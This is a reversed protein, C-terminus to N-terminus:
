ASPRNRPSPGAGDGRAQDRESAKRRVTHRTEAMIRHLEEDFATRARELLAAAELLIPQDYANLYRKERTGSGVKLVPPDRHQSIANKVTDDKCWRDYIDILACRLKYNAGSADGDNAGADEAAVAGEVDQGGDSAGQSPRSRRPKRGRSEKVASLEERTLQPQLGITRELCAHWTLLLSRDVPALTRPRPPATVTKKERVRRPSPAPWAARVPSPVCGNRLKGGAFLPYDPLRGARYDVELERNFGITLSVMLSAKQSPCFIMSFGRKDGCSPVTALLHGSADGDVGLHSRWIQTAQGLRREGFLDYALQARPDIEFVEPGPDFPQDPCGTWVGTPIVPDTVAAGEPYFAAKYGGDLLRACALRANASLTVPKTTGRVTDVDVRVLTPAVDSDFDKWAVRQTGAKTTVETLIATMIVRPDRLAHLMAIAEAHSHRPQEPKAALDLEPFVKAWHSQVDKRFKRHLGAPDKSRYAKTPHMRAVHWLLTRVYGCYREALERRATKGFTTASFLAALAPNAYTAVRQARPLAVQQMQFRTLDAIASYIQVYHIGEIDGLPMDAGLVAIAVHAARRHEPTLRSEGPTPKPSVAWWLADALTPTAQTAPVLTTPSTSRTVEAHQLPAAAAVAVASAVSAADVRGDPTRVDLPISM